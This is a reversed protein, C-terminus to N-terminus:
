AGTVTQKTHRSRRIWRFALIALFIFLASEVYGGLLLAYFEVRALARPFQEIAWFGLFHMAVWLTGVLRLFGMRIWSENPHFEADFFPFIVLLNLLEIPIALLLASVLPNTFVRKM